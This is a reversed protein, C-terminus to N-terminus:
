TNKLQLHTQKNADDSREECFLTIFILFYFACQLAMEKLLVMYTKINLAIIHLFNDNIGMDNLLSKEVSSM